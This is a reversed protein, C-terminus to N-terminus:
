ARSALREAVAECDARSYFRTWAGGADVLAALLTGLNRGRHVADANRSALSRRAAGPQGLLGFLAGGGSAILDEYRVIREAPLNDGYQAFFWNLIALQRTPVDATRAVAGRLDGDFQEGAPIRGRNVPLDVTQWSALVVLPNRILAVCPFSVTLEELLAAFLANHKILLTFRDSLPKHIRIEGPAARRRRLGGEASESVVNDDLRGAIQLSPARRERGAVRRADAAFAAIRACAESSAAVDTFEARPIPESLAVVDPLEGALRCALSSGSRPIGTLLWTDSAPKNM